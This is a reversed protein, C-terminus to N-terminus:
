IRMSNIVNEEPAKYQISGPLQDDSTTYTTVYEETTVESSVPYWMIVIFCFILTLTMKNILLDSHIMYSSSATKIYCRTHYNLHFLIHISMFLQRPTQHIYELHLVICISIISFRLQKLYASIFKNVIQM